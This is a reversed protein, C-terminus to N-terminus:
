KDGGMFRNTDSFEGAVYRECYDKFGNLYLETEGNESVFRGNANRRFPSCWRESKMACKVFISEQSVTFPDGTMIVEQEFEEPDTFTIVRVRRKKHTGIFKFLLNNIYQDGFGYGIILLEDNEMLAKILGYMYIQMPSWILKDTKMRGTIINSLFINHGSQSIDDSRFHRSRVDEAIEFSPYKYLTYGQEEFAFSNIDSVRFDAEEFAIQGHIHSITHHEGPNLYTNAYFRQFNYGSPEEIPEFGDVYGLLIREMWMDYNLNFVDLVVNERDILSGYYDKMWGSKLDYQSDYEGM